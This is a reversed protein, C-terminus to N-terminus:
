YQLSAQFFWSRYNQNTDIFLVKRNKQSRSTFFLHNFNHKNLLLIFILILLSTGQIGREYLLLADTHLCQRLVLWRISRRKQPFIALFCRFTHCCCVCDECIEENKQEWDGRIKQGHLLIQPFCHLLWEDNKWRRAIQGKRECKVRKLNSM